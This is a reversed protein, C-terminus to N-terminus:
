DALLQKYRRAQAAIDIGVEATLADRLRQTDPGIRGNEIQQGEFSRVHLVGISTSTIFIEEARQADASTLNQERCEIGLQNALELIVGRTVGPLVNRLEPTAIKGAKVLFVNASTCETLYGDPDVMVALAGPQKAAAQLTALQYHMRSRTKISANLLETPIAQQEPIVLEVGTEYASALAALKHKLPFCSITVTSRREEAAFASLFDRAPGRSVNQIINWDVDSAETPLNHALTEITLRELEDLSMGLDIRLVTLSHALRELHHRLRFPRHKFTRTVEFAADGMVMASDYISVRADAEAVFKGNLYVVRDSM